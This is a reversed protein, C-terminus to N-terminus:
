GVSAEGIPPAPSVPFRREAWPSLRTVKLWAGGEPPPWLRSYSPSAVPGQRGEWLRRSESHGAGPLQPIPLLLSGPHWAWPGSYSAGM